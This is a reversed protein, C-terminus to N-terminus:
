QQKTQNPKNFYCHYSSKHGTKQKQKSATDGRYGQSLQIEGHLAPQGQIYLLGGGGAEWTSLNYTCTM